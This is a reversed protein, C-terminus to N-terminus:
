PASSNLIDTGCILVRRKFWYLVTEFVSSQVVGVVVAREEGDEFAGVKWLCGLFAVFSLEHGTGYDLRQASGFSGLLYVKLEERFRVSRGDEEGGISDLVSELHMDCLMDVKDEVLAM